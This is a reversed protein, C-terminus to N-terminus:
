RGVKLSEIFGATEGVTRHEALLAMHEELSVGCEQEALTMLLLRNISDMGIDEVFRSDGSIEQAAPLDPAVQRVLSILRSLETQLTSGEVTDIVM